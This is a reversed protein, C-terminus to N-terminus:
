RLAQYLQFNNSRANRCYVRTMSTHRHTVYRWRDDGDGHLTDIAKRAQLKEVNMKAVDELTFGFEGALISVYWLVDGLEKAIGNEAVEGAEGVLGLAPYVFSEGVVAYVATSKAFADYEDFTM